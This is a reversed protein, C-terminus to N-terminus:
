QIIMTTQATLTCGRPAFNVGMVVLNCPYTGTVQASGGQVLNTCTSGSGGPFSYTFTPSRLLPAASDAAGTATTCPNPSTIGRSISVQQAAANTAFTLQVYNNLAIGFVLIGFLIFLVVPAVLVFELAAQGQGDGARRRAHRTGSLAELRVRPPAATRESRIHGNDKIETTIRKEPFKAKLRLSFRSFSPLYIKYM